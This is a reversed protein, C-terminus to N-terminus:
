KIWPRDFLKSPNMHLVHNSVYAWIVENEKNKPIFHITTLAHKISLEFYEKKIHQIREQDTLVQLHKKVMEIAILETNEM